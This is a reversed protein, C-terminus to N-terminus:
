VLARHKLLQFAPNKSKLSAAQGLCPLDARGAAPAETVSHRPRAWHPPALSAQGTCEHHLARTNNATM